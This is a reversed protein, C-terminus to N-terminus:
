FFHAKDDVQYHALRDRLNGSHIELKHGNPDLFYLSDGPSSNEKFKEVGSNILKEELVSFDMPEVYFAIHSYEPLSSVRLESDEEICFWLDGALFYISKERRMLPRFGLTDKYFLFSEEIDRVSLTIHSFGRIM